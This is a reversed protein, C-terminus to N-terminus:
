GTIFVKRISANRCASARRVSKYKALSLHGPSVFGKFEFNEVTSLPFIPFFSIQVSPILALIDSTVKEILKKTSSVRSLSIMLKQGPSVFNGFNKSKDFFM